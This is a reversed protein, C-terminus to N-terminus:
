KSDKLKLGLEALKAKLEKLSTEGFNRCGLLEAETKQILEGLTRVGLKQMCAQCRVTLELDTLPKSLLEFRDEDIFFDGEGEGGEELAQGLRLGKSAVMQKIENM